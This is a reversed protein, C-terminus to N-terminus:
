SPTGRLSRLYERDFAALLSEEKSYVGPRYARSSVGKQALECMHWDQRNTIDWIEVGDAPDFALKTQAGVLPESKTQFFSRNLRLGISTTGYKRGWMLDFSENVNTNPDSGNGLSTGGGNGGQGLSPTEERLNVGWTGLKGDFLNQLVAGMARDGPHAGNATFAGTSGLEGYILNGVGTICSTYTYIGTYDKVYDGPIAMGEIRSTQALALTPLALLAAVVLVVRRISM